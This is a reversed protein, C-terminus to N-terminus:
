VVDTVGGAATMIRDDSATPPLEEAIGGIVQRGYGDDLPLYIVVHGSTALGGLITQKEILLTKMGSRVSALAAACGAVGGGVVVVDYERSVPLVAPANITIEKM